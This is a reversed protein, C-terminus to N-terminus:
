PTPRWLGSLHPLTKASDLARQVAGNKSCAYTRRAGASALAKRAQEVRADQTAVGVLVAGSGFADRPFDIVHKWYGLGGLAGAFLGFAAGLAAGQLAELPARFTIVGVGALIMVGFAAGVIVGFLAVWVVITKRKTVFEQVERRDNAVLAGVEGPPFSANVLADVAGSATERNPFLAHVFQEM